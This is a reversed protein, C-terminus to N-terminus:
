NVLSAPLLCSCGVLYLSTVATRWLTGVLAVGQRLRCVFQCSLPIIRSAMSTGIFHLSRCAVKNAYAKEAVTPSQFKAGGIIILYKIKPVRTLALGQWSFVSRCYSSAAFSIFKSQKSDQIFCSSVQEQLGPLAASM